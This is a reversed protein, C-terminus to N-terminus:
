LPSAATTTRRSPAGFRTRADAGIGSHFWLNHSHLSEEEAGSLRLGEGLSSERV